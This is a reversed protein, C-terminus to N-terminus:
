RPTRAQPGGQQITSRDMTGVNTINITIPPSLDSTHQSAAELEQQTFTMNEGLIGDQELKLSWDLITNRVADLVMVMAGRAVKLKPIGPPEFDNEFPRLLLNQLEFSFDITFSESKGDRLLDQLPGIPTKIDRLSVVEAMGPDEFLLPRVGFRPHQLIVQGTAKRYDPVEHNRYGNLELDVWSRFEPLDLKAAVVLAKRLLIGIDDGDSALQQLSIVLPIM